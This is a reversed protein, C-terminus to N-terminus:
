LMRHGRARFRAVDPPKPFSFYKAGSMDLATAKAAGDAISLLVKIMLRAGERKTETIVRDLVDNDRLPYDLTAIVGGADLKAAMEHVTVTVHKEGELLQWFTPMMGRYIPLRGSHINICGFRAASMIGAKFVEPAAVSVIVDPKLDKVKEVYAPDNVSVCPIVPVGSKEALTGISRRSLKVMAFRTLLKVFDVTGYFRHIRKATKIKSEHFAADVTVGLLEIRNRPLEAFFVDFFNIVYLPDDETIVLVKLKQGPPTPTLAALSHAPAAAAPTTV